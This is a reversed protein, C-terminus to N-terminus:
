LTATFYFGYIPSPIGQGLFLFLIGMAQLSIFIGFVAWLYSSLRIKMMEIKFLNM